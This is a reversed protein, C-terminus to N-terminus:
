DRIKGAASKSNHNRNTQLIHKKTKNRTSSRYGTKTAGMKRTTCMLSMMELEERERKRNYVMMM